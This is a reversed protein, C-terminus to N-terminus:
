ITRNEMVSNIGFIKNSFSNLLTSTIVLLLVAGIYLVRKNQKELLVPILYNINFYFAVMMIALLLVQKFWFKLPLEIGWTIPHYYLVIFALLVWAIVHVLVRANERFMFKLM